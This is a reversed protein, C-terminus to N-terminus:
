KKPFLRLYSLKFTIVTSGQTETRIGELVNTNSDFTFTYTSTKGKTEFHKYILINGEPASSFEGRVSYSPLLNRDIPIEIFDRGNNKNEAVIAVTAYNQRQDKIRETAESSFLPKSKKTIVSTVSYIGEIGRAGAEEKMMYREMLNKFDVQEFPYGKRQHGLMYLKEVSCSTLLFAMVLTLLRLLTPALSKYARKQAIM